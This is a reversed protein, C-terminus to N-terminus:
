EIKEVHKGSIIEDLDLQIPLNVPAYEHIKVLVHRLPAGFTLCNECEEVKTIIVIAGIPLTERTVVEPGSWGPDRSSIVYFHIEDSYGPPANVGSYDMDAKLRYKQGIYESFEREGSIDKYEARCGALLLLTGFLILKGAISKM